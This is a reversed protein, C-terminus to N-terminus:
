AYDNYPRNDVILNNSNGRFFHWDLRSAYLKATGFLCRAVGLSTKEAAISGCEQKYGEGANKYFLRLASDM